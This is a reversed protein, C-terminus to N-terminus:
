KKKILCLISHNFLMLTAFILMRFCYESQVNKRGKYTRKFLSVNKYKDMLEGSFFGHVYHKVGVM